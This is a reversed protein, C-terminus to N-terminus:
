SGGTPIDPAAKSNAADPDPSPVSVKSECAENKTASLAEDIKRDLSAPSLAEKLLKEMEEATLQSAKHVIEETVESELKSFVERMQMERLERKAEIARHAELAGRILQKTANESWEERARKFEKLDQLQQKLELAHKELEELEPKGFDRLARFLGRLSRLM